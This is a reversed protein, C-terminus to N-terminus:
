RGSEKSGKGNWYAAEFEVPPVYGLASHIRKKMYVEELFPGIRERSDDLGEYDNLYVEEEKLTRFFREAIANETPKGVSAMSIQTGCGQLRGVYDGAAYQIGHDSHHIEPARHGALAKELATLVLIGELTRDLHWGRIARTFLDLLIALFVFETRTRIYTIDAAWVQDPRVIDMDRVLNPWHGVGPRYISTRVLRRVQVLLHAERMVRLVRKHNVPLGRRGLEKTMSRYGYRPFELAIQELAARLETDQRRHAVYYYSSPPLQSVQCLLRVDFGEALEHVLRRKRPTTL